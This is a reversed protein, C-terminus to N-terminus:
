GLRASDSEYGTIETCSQISSQPSLVRFMYALLFVQVKPRQVTYHPQTIYDVQAQQMGPIDHSHM